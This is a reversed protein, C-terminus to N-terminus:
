SSAWAGGGALARVEDYASLWRTLEEPSLQGRLAERRRRARERTMGLRVIWRAAWTYLPGYHKQFLRFRSRHLEVFMEQQRQSASAGGLHVIEASPVCHIQWGVRRARMCWDIEECYMFFDEDLPGLGEWVERRAALAAGLPHDIPFAGREYLAQSYRGNLRSDALRHNIPFFDLFAMTLTPFAFASHQLEGDPYVLKPGVIGVEPHDELHAILAGIAQPRILTDPNLLLLYRGQCKSLALNNAAAFGLNSRSAIVQARPFARHVMDASGDCSANDVVWVEFDRPPAGWGSGDLTELLSDLCGKLLDRVNYSVIVVSLLPM